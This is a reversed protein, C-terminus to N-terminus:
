ILEAKRYLSKATNVIESVKIKDIDDVIREAEKRVGHLKKSNDNMKKIFPLYSDHVPDDWDCRYNKEIKDTIGQYENDNDILPNLTVNPM